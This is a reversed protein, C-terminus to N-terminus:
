FLINNHFSNFNFLNNMSLMFSAPEVNYADTYDIYKMRDPVIFLDAFGIDSNEKQLEGVLGLNYVPFFHFNSFYQGTFTGNKNEGWLEGNPPPNIDLQFNMNKALTKMVHFEWGGYNGDEDQYTYPAFNFTTAKLVKGGFDRLKDPFM